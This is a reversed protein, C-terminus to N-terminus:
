GQVEWEVLADGIADSMDVILSREVAYAHGRDTANSGHEHLASFYGKLMDHSAWHFASWQLASMDEGYGLYREVIEGVSHSDSNRWTREFGWGGDKLQREVTFTRRVCIHSRADGDFSTITAVVDVKIRRVVGEFDTNEYTATPMTATLDHEIGRSPRSHIHRAEGARRVCWATFEESFLPAVPTVTVGCAYGGGGITVSEGTAKAAATAAMILALTVDNVVEEDYSSRKIDDGHERITLPGTDGTNITIDFTPTM